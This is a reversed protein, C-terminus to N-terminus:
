TRHIEIDLAFEELEKANHVGLFLLIVSRITLQNGRPTNM